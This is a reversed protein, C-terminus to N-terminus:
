ERLGVAELAEERSPYTRGRLIKGESLVFVAGLRAEVPVGSEKGIAQSRFTVVVTNPGAESVQEIENRFEEWADAM